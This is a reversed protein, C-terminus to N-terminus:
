ITTSLFPLKCFFSLVNKKKLNIQKGSLKSEYMIIDNNLIAILLNNITSYKIQIAKKQPVYCCIM